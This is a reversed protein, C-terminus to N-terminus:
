VVVFGKLLTLLENTSKTVLDDGVRKHGWPSYRAENRQGNSKGPLIVPTLKM